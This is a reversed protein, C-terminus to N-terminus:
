DLDITKRRHSMTEEESLNAMEAAAWESRAAIFAITPCLKGSEVRQQLVQWTDDPIIGRDHLLGYLDTAGMNGVYLDVRVDKQMEAAWQVEPAADLVKQLRPSFEKIGELNWTGTFYQHGEEDKPILPLLSELEKRQPELRQRLNDLKPHDMILLNPMTALHTCPFKEQVEHGLTEYFIVVDPSISVPQDTEFALLNSMKGNDETEGQEKDVAWLYLSKDEAFYFPALQPLGTNELGKLVEERYTKWIDGIIKETRKLEIIDQKGLHKKSRIARNIQIAREMVAVDEPQQMHRLLLKMQRSLSLNESAYKYMITHASYGVCCTNNLLCLGSRLAFSEWNVSFAPAHSNFVLGTM